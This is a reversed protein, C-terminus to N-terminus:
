LVVKDWNRVMYPLVVSVVGTITVSAWFWISMWRGINDFAGKCIGMVAYISWVIYALGLVIIVITGITM